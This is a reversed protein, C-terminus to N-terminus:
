NDFVRRNLFKLGKHLLDHLIFNEIYCLKKDQKNMKRKSLKCLLM